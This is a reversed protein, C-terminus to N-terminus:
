DVVVTLQPFQSSCISFICPISKLLHFTINFSMITLISMYFYSHRKTVTNEWVVYWDKWTMDFSVLMWELLYMDQWGLMEILIFMFTMHMSFLFNLWVFALSVDKSIEFHLHWHKIQLLLLVIWSLWYLAGDSLCSSWQPFRPFALSCTHVCHFSSLPHPRSYSAVSNLNWENSLLSIEAREQVPCLTIFMSSPLSLMLATLSTFSPFLIGSAKETVWIFSLVLGLTTVSPTLVSLM